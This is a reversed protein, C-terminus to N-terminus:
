VEKFITVRKALSVAIWTAQWSTCQSSLPANVEATEGTWALSAPAVKVSMPWLSRRLTNPSVSSIKFLFTAAAMRWPKFTIKQTPSVKCSRSALLVMSTMSPWSLFPRALKVASCNFPIIIAYSGTQAMPVPLVAVGSWACSTCAAIRAYKALVYPSLNAWAVRM